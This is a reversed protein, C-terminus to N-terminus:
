LCEAGGCPHGRDTGPVQPEQVEDRHGGRCPTCRSAACTNAAATCCSLLGGPRPRFFSAARELRAGGASGVVLKADNYQKKLELLRSLTVPRYWACREGPLALEAAARKRLEPPFIPEVAPRPFPPRPLTCSLHAPLSALHIAPCAASLASPLLHQSASAPVSVAAAWGRHLGALRAAAAPLAPARAADYAGAPRIHTLPGCAEEKHKSASVIAGNGDSEGCDCPQGTSPCVRGNGNKGNKGNAAGNAGNAAHGNAKSAAIAEETYAAADVKAFAKFADLIPRYGTCRSRPPLM